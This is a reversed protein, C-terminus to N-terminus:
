LKRRSHTLAEMEDILAPHDRVLTEILAILRDKTLRGLTDTLAPREEVAEPEHLLTLLVAVIHKCWGGWDYPCTCIADDLDEGDLMVQVRYPDIDSGAVEAHVVDGRRILSLVAGDAYYQEGREIIRPEAHREITGIHLPGGM